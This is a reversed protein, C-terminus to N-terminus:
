RLVEILYWTTGPSDSLEFAFAGDHGETARPAGWPQGWGDLPQVSVRRVATLGRLSVTARVPEIRTPAHGTAGGARPDISTRTEDTWRMGTNAVRAAAVLLLREARTIPAGDLSILQLAAFRTALEVSVNSTRRKGARMVLCQHAPADILLAGDGPRADFTLESTDSVIAAAAGEPLTVAGAEPSVRTADFSGIVTRHVLALRGPLHPLWYPRAPDSATRASELVFEPSYAREVTQRAAQVDGRLFLLAGAALQSMKLPDSCLRLHHPVSQAQWIHQWDFHGGTYSHWFFGDWDQLCAYAALLPIAEAAHDNPFSENIESIIYPHGEVPSRSLRAV